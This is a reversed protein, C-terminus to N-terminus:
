HQFWEPKKFTVEAKFVEIRGNKIYAKWWDDKDEGRGELKFTVEPYKPSIEELDHRWDFWKDQFLRKNNWSLESYNKLADSAVGDKDNYSILYYDTYYSM